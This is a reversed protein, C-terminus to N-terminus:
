TFTHFFSSQILYFLTLHFPYYVYFLYKRLSYFVSNGSTEIEIRCLGSDHLLVIPLALLSLTQVYNESLLLVNIFIFAPVGIRKDERLVAMIIIVAIGYVSGEVNVFAALVPLLILWSRRRYLIISLLGLSLTFFINLQELPEFGFALFYPTQSIAAFFLLRAIYNRPNGTSEVGLVLLYSFIPFSLRGIVRLLLIDPFFIVGVHDVTMTIVAIAKLLERILDFKRTQM